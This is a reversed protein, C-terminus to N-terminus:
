LPPPTHTTCHRTHHPREQTRTTRTTHTQHPREQHNQSENQTHREQNSQSENEPPDRNQGWQTGLNGRLTPLMDMLHPTYSLQFTCNSLCVLPTSCRETLHIPPWIIHVMLLPAPLITCTDVDRWLDTCGNKKDDPLVQLLQLGEQLTPSTKYHQTSNTKTPTLITGVAHPM